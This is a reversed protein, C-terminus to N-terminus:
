SVGGTAAYLLVLGTANNLGHALMGPLLSDTRQYVLTLLTGLLFIGIGLGLMQAPNMVTPQLHLVAFIVGPVVYAVWLPQRRRYLGFLFGRFFLEEVIPACVAAVALVVLFSGLGERRVFRFQDFQNPRLGVQALASGVVITLLLGGLGALCGIRVIREIPLLRVGLDSWTVAGPAILRGYVVALMAMETALIAGLFTPTTFGTSVSSRQAAAMPLSLLGTLLLVVVLSGFALRHSGLDRRASDPGQFAPRFVWVTTAMGVLLVAAALWSSSADM